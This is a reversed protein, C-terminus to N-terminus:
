DDFVWAVEVAQMEWPNPVIMRKRMAEELWKAWRRASWRRQNVYHAKRGKRKKITVKLILEEM